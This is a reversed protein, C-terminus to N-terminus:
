NNENVIIKINKYFDVLAHQPLNQILKKTNREYEKLNFTDAYLRRLSAYEYKMTVNYSSDITEKFYNWVEKWNINGQITIEKLINLLKISM